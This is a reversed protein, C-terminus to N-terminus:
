DGSNVLAQELARVRLSGGRLQVEGPHLTARARLFCPRELKLASFQLIAAIVMRDRSENVAIERLGAMSQGVEIDMQQLTEDDRQLTFTIADLYMQASAFVQMVVCFKPLVTPFHTVLLSENYIGIFSLKNNIEHRVDDCFTAVLFQNDFAQTV